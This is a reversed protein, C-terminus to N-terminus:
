ALTPAPYRQALVNLPEYRETESLERVSLVMAARRRKYLGFYDPAWVEPTPGHPGKLWVLTYRQTM